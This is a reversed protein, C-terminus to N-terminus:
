NLPNWLQLGKATWAIVLTNRRAHTGTHPANGIAEKDDQRDNEETKTM